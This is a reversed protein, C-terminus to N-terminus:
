PEGPSLGAGLRMHKNLDEQATPSLTETGLQGIALPMGPEKGHPGEGVHCSVKFLICSLIVMADSLLISTVTKQVLTHIGPPTPITPSWQSAQRVHKTDSM